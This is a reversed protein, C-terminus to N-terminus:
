SGALFFRRRAPSTPAEPAPPEQLLAIKAAQATLRAIDQDAFQAMSAILPCSLYDGVEDECGGLFAFEGAPYRIMLRRGEPAGVWGESGGPVLLLTMTWPAVLVGLWHGGDDERRSFGVAEVRLAENCFSLGAMRETEIRRFVAEVLPGPDRDHVKVVV